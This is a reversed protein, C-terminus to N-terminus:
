LSGDFNIAWYDLIKTEVPVHAKTWEVVFDILTQAKIVVCPKFIIDYVGLGLAWKIVRGIADKNHM